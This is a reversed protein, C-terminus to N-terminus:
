ENDHVGYMRTHKALECYYTRCKSLEPQASHCFDLAFHMGNRHGLIYPASRPWQKAIWIVCSFSSFVVCLLKWCNYLVSFTHQKNIASFNWDKLSLPPLLLLLLFWWFCGCWEAVNNRNWQKYHSLCKCKTAFYWLYLTYLDLSWEGFM